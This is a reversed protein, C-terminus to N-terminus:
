KAIPQKQEPSVFYGHQLFRLTYEQVKADNMMFTHLAPLVAFDAAGALRTSAVSVVGDNDGPVLPNYGREGGRGGAIIGFEFSPTALREQLRDWQRGLQQGPQGTVLQFLTNDAVLLALYAEHNPPGLMVFRRLRGDPKRGAQDGLYHRIVINGMSHAVFDIEHIGDLHRLIHKLAQAHEGIDLRTSPYGVNFVEQYGGQENLYQALGAMGERSHALGHLVIVARGHMPPLKRRVKIEELVALCHEYSGSAHRYDDADLLRCHETYVNRQIRWQHFFLEDAWFQKGGLTPMPIALPRSGAGPVTSSPQPDGAWLRVAGPLSAVTAVSVAALRRIGGM